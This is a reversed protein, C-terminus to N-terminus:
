VGPRTIGLKRIRNNLTTRKLGLRAAAGAPGGIVWNSDQLTHLIHEREVAELTGAGNLNSALKGPQKLDDMPVELVSGRSLTVAREILNQLERINGPWAYGTLAAMTETPIREIPKRMRQTYKQAFFNVLLPIDEARERLPPLTIPVVNLRYFLDSRFKKEAVMEALNINAAAVVRVNVKITRSSGLREFEQEQLVRLLKPQLELPIDEVEDLFITGHNALEFRGIRREIAGTFAGKEHGFMESELLGTPIAGCNVRVLTRERRPSLNHLARAILEKGTGTEGCILITADTAAVTEVEQLVRKLAASDGIIEEFNHDTRIEEELYLKEETLKNALDVIQTFGLANEVAIAIQNAVPQLLEADSQPFVPESGSAVVLVGLPRGHAILPLFCGSQFGENLVRRAFESDMQEVDSRTLLVPERRTIALGSPADELPVSLGEQLLGNGEPFALAHIQLTNSDSDYLALSAYEHSMVRRLCGAISKLLERLDLTSVVATGVELLLRLQDREKTLQQQATQAEAFNFANEVAVAIQATVLQAFELDLREYAGPKDSWISLVGLRQRATTLPMVCLSKVAYDRLVNTFPFRTEQDLDDIVVAQQNQWVLGAISGDIPIESPAQWATPECTELIHLRMANHTGDHLVVALHHFEFINKLRCALEHFLEPINRHSAIAKSLELLTLYQEPPLGTSSAKAIAKDM